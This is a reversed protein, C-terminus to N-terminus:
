LYSVTYQLAGNTAVTCGSSFGVDFVYTQLANTTTYGAIQATSIAAGDYINIASTTGGEVTLTHLIGAGTKIVNVATTSSFKYLYPTTVQEQFGAHAPVCFLLLIIISLITKM